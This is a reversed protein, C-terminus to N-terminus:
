RNIIKINMTTVIGIAKKSGEVPSSRSGGKKVSIHAAIAPIIMM